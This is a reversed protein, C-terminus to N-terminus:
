CRSMLSMKIKFFFLMKWSKQVNTTINEICHFIIIPYKIYIELNAKLWIVSLNRKLVILDHSMGLNVSTPPGNCDSTPRTEKHKKTLPHSSRPRRDNWFNYIYEEDHHFSHFFNGVFTLATLRMYGRDTPVQILCYNFNTKFKTGCAYSVM